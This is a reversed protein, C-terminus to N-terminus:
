WVFTEFYNKEDKEENRSKEIEPLGSIVSVYPM